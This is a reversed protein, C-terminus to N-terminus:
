WHAGPAGRCPPSLPPDAPQAAQLPIPPTHSGGVARPLPENLGMLTSSSGWVGFPGGLVFRPWPGRGWVAGAGGPKGMAGQVELLGEFGAPVENCDGWGGWKGLSVGFEVGGLRLPERPIEYVIASGDEEPPPEQPPEPHPEVTPVPLEEQKLGPVEQQEEPPPRHCM